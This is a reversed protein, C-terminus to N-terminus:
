GTSTEGNARGVSSSGDITSRKSNKTPPISSPFANESIL